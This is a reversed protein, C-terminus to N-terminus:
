RAGEVDVWAACETNTVSGQLGCTTVCTICDTVCKTCSTVCKTCSTICETCSTLCKKAAIRAQRMEWIAQALGLDQAQAVLAETTPGPQETMDQRTQEVQNYLELNAKLFLNELLARRADNAQGSAELFRTAAEQERALAAHAEQLQDLRKRLLDTYSGGRTEAM